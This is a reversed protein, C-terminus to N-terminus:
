STTDVLLDSAVPSMARSPVTPSPPEQEKETGSVVSNSVEEVM